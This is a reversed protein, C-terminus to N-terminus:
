GATITVDGVNSDAEVVVKSVKSAYDKSRAHVTSGPGDSNSDRLETPGIDVKVNGVDSKGTVDYGLDARTPLSAVVNGEAM